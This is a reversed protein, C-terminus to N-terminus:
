SHLQLGSGEGRLRLELAICGLEHRLNSIRSEDHTFSLQDFIAMEREKLRETAETTHEFPVTM